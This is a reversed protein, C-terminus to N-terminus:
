RPVFWRLWAARPKPLHCEIGRLHQNIRAVVPKSSLNLSGCTGFMWSLNGRMVSPGDTCVGIWIRFIAGEDGLVRKSFRKMINFLCKKLGDGTVDGACDEMGMTIDYFELDPFPTMFACDALMVETEGGHSPTEDFMVSLFKAKSLAPRLSEHM